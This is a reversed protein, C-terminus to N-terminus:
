HAEFGQGQSHGRHTARVSQFSQRSLARADGRAAKRGASRWGVLVAELLQEDALVEDLRQLAPEILGDILKEISGIAAEFISRQLHQRQIM